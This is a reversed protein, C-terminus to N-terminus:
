KSQQSEKKEIHDIRFSVYVQLAAGATLFALWDVAIMPDFFYGYIMCFAAMVYCLGSVKGLKYLRTLGKNDGKYKELMRCTFAGVAGLGFLYMPWQHEIMLTPSFIPLIAVALLLLMSISLCLNLIQTKKNM